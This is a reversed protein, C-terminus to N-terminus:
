KDEDKTEAQSPQEPEAVQQVPAGAAPANPDGAAGTGLVPGDTDTGKVKKTAM